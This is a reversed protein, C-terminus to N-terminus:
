IWWLILMMLLGAVFGAVLGFLRLKGSIGALAGRLAQETQEPPM